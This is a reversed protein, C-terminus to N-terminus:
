LAAMPAIRRNVSLAGSPKPILARPTVIDVTPRTGPMSLSAASPIGTVRASDSCAGSSSSRSSSTGILVRHFTSSAISAPVDVVLRPARIQQPLLEVGAAATPDVDVGDREVRGRARLPRGRPGPDLLLEDLPQPCVAYRGSDPVRAAGIDVTGAALEGGRGGSQRGSRRRNPAAMPGCIVKGCKETRHSRHRCASPM